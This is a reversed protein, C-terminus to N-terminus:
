RVEELLLRVAEELKQALEERVTEPLLAVVQAMDDEKLIVSLDLM